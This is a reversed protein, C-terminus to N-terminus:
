GVQVRVAVRCFLATPRPVTNKRRPSGSGGCRQETGAEDGDTAPPAM